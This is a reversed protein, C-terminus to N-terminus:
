GLRRCMVSVASLQVMAESVSESGEYDKSMRRQGSLWALTREVVWRKPELAFGRRRGRGGNRRDRRHVVALRWGFVRWVLGVPTAEYGSDAYVVQLRPVRGQARDLVQPALQSEAIGAPRVLVAILLGLSDVLVHRKRGLVRKGGDYSRPGGAHATRVTQSDIVAASPSEARGARLRVLGRVLGVLRDFVGRAAWRRFHYYVTQWPPFSTPLYRWQCGTKALYLLADLVRRPAHRAPTRGQVLPAIAQWRADTLDSGYRHLRM